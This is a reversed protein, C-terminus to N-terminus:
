TKTKIIRMGNAKTKSQRIVNKLKLKQSQKNINIVNPIISAYKYKTFKIM